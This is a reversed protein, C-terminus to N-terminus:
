EEIGYYLQLMLQCYHIVKKIDEAGNKAKHRCLYKIANGEMFPLNNKVIFEIPQIVMEKYHDGGVQKKTAEM